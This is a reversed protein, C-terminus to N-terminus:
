TPSCHDLDVLYERYYHVLRGTDLPNDLEAAPSLPHWERRPFPSQSSLQLVWQTRAAVPLCLLRCALYRRCSCYAARANIHVSLGEHIRLVSVPAGHRTVTVSWPAPSQMRPFSEQNRSHPRRLPSCVRGRSRKPQHPNPRSALPEGLAAHAVLSTRRRAESDWM